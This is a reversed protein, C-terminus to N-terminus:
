QSQQVIYQSQIPEVREAQVLAQYIMTAVEARTANVNPNLLNPEPHNVVLGATTAAAVKETAYNPIQAADKYTQLVQASDAPPALNLGSVLAVLVQARPIEQEPRFTNDPYGQLFGTQTARNIAPVGWFEDPVDQYKVTSEGPPQGFAAQLLAAFEARTVPEDPRFYGGPFGNVIGRAALATIFPRAWFNEPVDVFDVPQAPAPTRTPFPIVAPIRGAFPAPSPLPTLPAPTPTPVVQPVPAAAPPVPAVPAVPAAPATPPPVLIGVLPDFGGYRRSLSWFLIAGITAFAVLIAILEDFGLPNRESSRPDPPPLNTM